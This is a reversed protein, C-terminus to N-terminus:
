HTWRDRDTFVITERRHDVFVEGNIGHQIARSMTTYNWVVQAGKRGKPEGLINKADTFLMGDHLTGLSFLITWSTTTRGRINNDNPKAGKPVKAYRRGIAEVRQRIPSKPKYELYDLLLALFKSYSANSDNALCHELATAEVAAFEDLYPGIIKLAETHGRGPPWNHHARSLVSHNVKWWWEPYPQGAKEPQHTRLLEVMQQALGENETENLAAKLHDGDALWGEKLAMYAELHAIQEATPEQRRDAVPIERVVFRIRGTEVSGHWAGAPAGEVKPITHKVWAEYAREIRLNPKVAQRTRADWWSPSPNVIPIDRWLVSYTQGKKRVVPMRYDIAQLPRASKMPVGGDPYVLLRNDPTRLYLHAIPAHHSYPVHLPNESLVEAQASIRVVEGPAVKDRYMFVTVRIQGDDGSASQRWTHEDAVAGTAITYLALFYVFTCTM